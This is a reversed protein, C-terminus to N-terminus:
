PAERDRSTILGTERASVISAYMARGALAVKCKAGRREAEWNDSPTTMADGFLEVRCLCGIDHRYRPLEGRVAQRMGYAGVGGEWFDCGPLDEREQVMRGQAGVFPEGWGDGDDIQIVLLRDACCRGSRGRHGLGISLGLLVVLINDLM